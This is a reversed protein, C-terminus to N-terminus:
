SFVTHLKHKMLKAGYIVKKYTYGMRVPLYQDFHLAINKISRHARLKGKLSRTDCQRLCEYTKFPSSFKGVWSVFGVFRQEAIEAAKADLKRQSCEEYFCQLIRMCRPLLSDQTSSTMLSEMRIEYHYTIKQVAFMSKATCAILATWLEDENPLREQFYLKNEKIFSTKCLKNWPMSYFEDKQLCEAIHRTGMVSGQMNLPIAKIGLGNQHLEYGGVVVDYPYAKLPKVLTEVCDDTIHDDSDIFMLYEGTAADIGTNRAVSVGQNQEHRLFVFKLDKSLPSQEIFAKAMEMSRDPTCDDVLIVELNRYTQRLVSQICREIYPEVKYVPIIISVKRM